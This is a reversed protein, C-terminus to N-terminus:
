EGPIKLDPMNNMKNLKNILGDIGESGLIMAFDNKKTRLLSVGEVQMDIVKLGKERDRVRWVINTTPYEPSEITSYVFADKKKINTNKVTFKQGKYTGLQSSYINVIHLEFIKAFNELKDQSTNKSIEKGLIVKSIFSMDFKEQLLNRLEQKRKKKDDVPIKLIKIAQNGISVVFSKAKEEEIASLDFSVLSFILLFFNRLIFNM